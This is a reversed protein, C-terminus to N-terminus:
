NVWAGNRPHASSLKIWYLM